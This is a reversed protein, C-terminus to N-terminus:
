KPLKVMFVTGKPNNHSAKITGQHISVIYNALSLGLGFGGTERNRAKDERYFREFVHQLGEDSIGIGTDRVEIVCKNENNYTKITIKDGRKQTSWQM